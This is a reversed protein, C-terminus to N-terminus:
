LDNFVEGIDEYLELWLHYKEFGKKMSLGRPRTLDTGIEGIYIVNCIKWDEWQFESSQM